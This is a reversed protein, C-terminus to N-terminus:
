IHLSAIDAFHPVSPATSPDSASALGQLMKIVEVIDDLYYKAKSPKQGVICAFVEASLADNMLSEINEFMDEDSQDDGVCLVLDPLSAREMRLLLKEVVVGKSVGQPAVEVIQAGSKVAVPESALVSELHNQLEKAQWSGFDPDAFRRHWVLASEKYQIYSGDTSETYLHSCQLQVLLIDAGSRGSQVVAKM